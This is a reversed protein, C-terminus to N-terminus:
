GGCFSSFQASAEQFTGGLVAAERKDTAGLRASVPVPARVAADGPGGHGARQLVGQPLGPRHRAPEGEGTAGAAAASGRTLPSTM